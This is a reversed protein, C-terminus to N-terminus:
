RALRSLRQPDYPNVIRQPQSWLILSLLREIMFVTGPAAATGYNIVDSLRRQKAM